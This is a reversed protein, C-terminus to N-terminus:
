MCTQLVKSWASLWALVGGSLKKVPRIGKRGGLWCRWLVSPLLTLASFAPTLGSFPVFIIYCSINLPYVLYNIPVWSLRGPSVYLFLLLLLRKITMVCTLRCWGAGGTLFQLIRNTCLKVAQMGNRVVVLANSNPLLRQHEGWYHPCNKVSPTLYCPNVQVIATFHSSSNYLLCYRGFMLRYFLQMWCVWCVTTFYNVCVLSSTYTNITIHCINWRREDTSFVNVFVFHIDAHYFYIFFYWLWM